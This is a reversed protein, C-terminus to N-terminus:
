RGTGAPDSADGGGDENRGHHDDREDTDQQATV